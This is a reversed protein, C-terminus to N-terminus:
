KEEKADYKEKTEIVMKEMKNMCTDFDFQDRTKLYEAEMKKLEEPNDFWYDIKKALDDPNNVEFLSRDDLAFAKTACKPSNAICFFYNLIDVFM